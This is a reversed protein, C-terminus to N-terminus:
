GNRRLEKICTALKNPPSVNRYGHKTLKQTLEENPIDEIRLVRYGISAAVIELDVIFKRFIGHGMMRMKGPVMRADIITVTRDERWEEPYPFNKIASVKLDVGLCDEIVSYRYTPCIATYYDRLFSVVEESLSMGEVPGELM